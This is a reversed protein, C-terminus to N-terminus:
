IQPPGRPSLNISFFTEFNFSEFVKLIALFSLQPHVFFNITHTTISSSQFHCAPCSDSKKITKETHFFNIFLVLSIFLFFFLFNLLKKEKKIM